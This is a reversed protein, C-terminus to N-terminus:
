ETSYNFGEYLANIVSWFKPTKFKIGYKPRNKATGYYMPEGFFCSSAMIELQKIPNKIDYSEGAMFNEHVTSKSDKSKVTPNINKKVYSM